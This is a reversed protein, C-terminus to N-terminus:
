FKVQAIVGIYSNGSQQMVVPRLIFKDTVLTGIAAGVANAAADMLGFKGNGSLDQVGEGIVGAAAGVAFGILARHEPWYKNAIATTV